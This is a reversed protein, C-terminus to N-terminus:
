REVRWVDDLRGALKEYEAAVDLFRRREIPDEVAEALRRITAAYARYYAPQVQICEGPSPRLANPLIFNM